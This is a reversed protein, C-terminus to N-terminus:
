ALHENLMSDVDGPAGNVRVSVAEPDVVTLQDIGVIGIYEEIAGVLVAAGRDIDSDKM